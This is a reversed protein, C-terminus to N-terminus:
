KRMFEPSSLMLGTHLTAPEQAIRQRSAESLFPTLFATPKTRKGLAVAFDARRTLAEPSLWTAADTKYGDPTQWGHVPQGAQALFGMAQAAERPDRLGGTATLASCAYDFPTKFLRQDAQWFERSSILTKLTTRIDGGSDLFVAALENVLAAPPNDAVFFSAMRQAIRRATAPHRALMRIAEEGETVGKDRIVVGLLRKEGSDHAQANFRFGDDRNTAVTWGTLIRALERVDNQNYGGAVGLTHLELLERAYNENLGRANGRHGASGEAVSQAQDLYFLMAPHKASALLMDEYKGLANSRIVNLVYHGVFPRVPGKGSFVNLHNFWFETMRALLPHEIDPASCAALRWAAADGSVLASFPRDARIAGGAPGEGNESKQLKEQGAKRAEREKTFEPFIEALSLSTRQAWAPIHAPTKSAALAADIQRLAWARADGAKTIDSVQGVTPGYGLRSTLRWQTDSPTQAFVPKSLALVGTLVILCLTSDNRM